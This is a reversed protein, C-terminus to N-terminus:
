LDKPALLAKHARQAKLAQLAILAVNRKFNLQLVFYV